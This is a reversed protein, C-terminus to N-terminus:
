GKRDKRDKRDNRCRRLAFGALALLSLSAPEPIASASDLPASTGGTAFPEGQRSINGDIIGYDDVNIKGDFNFDGAAYGFVSGSSAVNADIRGYDDVNIKGDLNADGGWTLAIIVDDTDLPEGSISTRAIDGARAIALTTLDNDTARADSTVIGVGDWDGGNRGSAILGTLGTYASDNWTGLNGARVIAKNAALDLKGGAEITLSATDLVGATLMANGGSISLGALHQTVNFVISASPNITVALGAADTNFTVDGGSILLTAGAGHNQPGSVSMAGPGTKNLTVGAAISFPGGVALPENSPLYMFGSVPFHAVSFVRATSNLVLNARAASGPLNQDSTAITHTSEFEGAVASNLTASIAASGGAALNTITPASLGLRATDGTGNISDVDLGATFGQTAARNHVAPAASRLASGIPVYGFDVSAALQESDGSFSPKAHDLVAYNVDQVYSNNAVAQSSSTVLIAGSKNGASATNLTVAHTNGSGLAADTGNVSGSVAGGTIISYDLEDAGVAYMVPATNSVTVNLSVSAGVIVQAPVTPGAVGLRAPLQYDAVVPVHDLVGAMADLVNQPQATNGPWNIARDMTITGNNGFAQYSNPIYAVGEGDNLNATIMQWDFRDDMGGTAGITFGTGLASATSASYPSQTFATKFAPNAHWAGIQNIPDLAQGNGASILKQFMPEADHYVNFDGLYVLNKNPGLADANARIANAEVLRRLPLNPDEDGNGAKYHSNYVYLDADPGYGVPRLQYRQAQRPQGSGSSNGVLTTAIVRVANYNYVLGQTGAGTTAGDTPDFRYDAGPYMGNMLDCYARVTVDASDVEQLALVDIPKIIGTSGPMFPDNSVSSGIASLITNIWPSRPLPNDANNYTNLSVVRLQAAAPSACVAVGAV